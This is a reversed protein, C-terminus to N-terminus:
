PCPLRLTESPSVGVALRMPTLASLTGFVLAALLGTALMWAAPAMATDVTALHRFAPSQLIPIAVTVGVTSGLLAQLMCEAVVQARIAADTWGIAKLLAIDRRRERVIATQAQSTWAVFLALALVASWGLGVRGIRVAQGAPQWCGFGVETAGPGLIHRTAAITRAQSDSSVGDVLALNAEECLPVARRANVVSVADDWPLYLDAKVPRTGPSLVGVIRFSTGALAVTDDLGHGTAVAFTQEVLAVGHDGPVFARGALVETASCAASRAAEMDAPHFGAVSWSETADGQEPHIRFGLVPAAHGVAPDTNLERIRDLPFLRTPHGHAQFGERVPDPWAATSADADVVFGVFQAGTRRLTQSSVDRTLTLLVITITLCATAAAHGIVVWLSRAPRRTLERWANRFAERM